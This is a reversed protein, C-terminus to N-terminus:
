PSFCSSSGEAKQVSGCRPAEGTRHEGILKEMWIMNYWRGFKYGCQHFEGIWTFGMHAHFEASNRTLYEDEQTPYSICAYLNLFGQEQLKQTLADYLAKGYGRGAYGNELYISLEVCRGYAARPHFAGAYAYGRIMQEEELVLYPYSRLTNEIRERFDGVTPIDYEFTVATNEVYWGYIELLRGADQATAM